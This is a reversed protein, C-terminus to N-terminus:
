SLRNNKTTRKKTTIINYRQLEHREYYNEQVIATWAVSYSVEM